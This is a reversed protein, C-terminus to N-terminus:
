EPDEHWGPHGFKGAGMIEAGIGPDHQQTFADDVGASGGPKALWAVWRTASKPLPTTGPRIAPAPARVSEPGHCRRDNDGERM